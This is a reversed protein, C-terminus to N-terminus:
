LPLGINIPNKKLVSLFFGICLPLRVSVVSITYPHMTFSENLESGASIKRCFLIIEIKGNHDGDNNGQYAIATLL